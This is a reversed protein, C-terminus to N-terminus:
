HPVMTTLSLTSALAGSSTTFGIDGFREKAKICSGHNLRASESFAVLTDSYKAELQKAKARAGWSLFLSWARTIYTSTWDKDDLGYFYAGALENRIAQVQTFGLRGSIAIGDDYARQVVTPDCRIQMSLIEAKFVLTFHYVNVCGKKVM